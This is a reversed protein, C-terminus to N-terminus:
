ELVRGTFEKDDDRPDWHEVHFDMPPSDINQLPNSWMICYNHFPCLAGYDMCSKPCMPFSSMVDDSEKEKDLVDMQRYVEDYWYNMMGLWAIMREPNTHFPVRHFENGASANAYPTGDLKLKPPNRFFFGNFEIGWIEDPEYLCHLVHLGTGTQVALPWSNEWADVRWASTKHELIMYGKKDKVLTDLRFFIGKEGGGPTTGIPVKGSIETHIVQFCDERYREIYQELIRLINEPDKPRHGDDEDTSYQQRYHNLCIKFGKFVSTATYLNRETGDQAQKWQEYIYELALHFAQGFWLNHNTLMPRWGLIYEFFYKRPCAMMTSLKSGDIVNWQPVEVPLM